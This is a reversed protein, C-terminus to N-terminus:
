TEDRFTETQCLVNMMKGNFSALNRVVYMARNEIKGSGYVYQITIPTTYPVEAIKHLRKVDYLLTLFQQKIVPNLSLLGRKRQLKSRAHYRLRRM